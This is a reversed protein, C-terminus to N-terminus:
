FSWERVSSVAVWVIGLGVGVGVTLQVTLPLTWLQSWSIPDGSPLWPPSSSEIVDAVRSGASLFRASPSRVATTSAVAGLIPVIM